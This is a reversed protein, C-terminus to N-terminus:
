HRQPAGNARNREAELKARYEPSVRAREEQAAQKKAALVLLAKDPLVHGEAERRAAAAKALHWKSLEVGRAVRDPLNEVKRVEPTRSYSSGAGAGAGAAGSARSSAPSHSRNAAESPHKRRYKIIRERAIRQAEDPSLADSDMSRDKLRRSTASGGGSGYGAGVGAGAGAGAGGSYGNDPSGGHARTSPAWKPRAASAPSKLVRTRDPTAHRRMTAVPAPLVYSDDGWGGVGEGAGDDGRDIHARRDSAVKSAKAAARSKNTYEKLLEKRKNAKDALIARAESLEAEVQRALEAGKEKMREFLPKDGTNDGRELM